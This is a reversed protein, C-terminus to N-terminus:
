RPRSGSVTVVDKPLKGPTAQFSFRPEAGAPGPCLFAVAGLALLGFVSSQTWIVPSQRDALM